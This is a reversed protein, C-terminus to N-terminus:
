RLSGPWGQSHCAVVAERIAERVELIEADSVPVQSDLEIIFAYFMTAKLDQEEMIRRVTVYWKAQNDPM